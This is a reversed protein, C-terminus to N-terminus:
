YYFSKENCMLDLEVCLKKKESDNLIAYLKQHRENKMSLSDLNQSALANILTMYSNSVFIDVAMDKLNNICMDHLISFLEAQQEDNLYETSDYKRLLHLDNAALSNLVTIFDNNGLIDMAVTAVIQSNPMFVEKINFPHYLSDDFCFTDVM